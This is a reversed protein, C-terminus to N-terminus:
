KRQAASISLTQIVVHHRQRIVVLEALFMDIQVLRNPEVTRIIRLWQLYNHVLYVFVVNVAIFYLVESSAAVPGSPMADVEAM